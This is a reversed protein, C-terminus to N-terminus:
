TKPLCELEVEGSRRRITVPSGSDPMCMGPGDSDALCMGPVGTDVMCM